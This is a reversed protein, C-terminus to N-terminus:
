IKRGTKDSYIRMKKRNFGFNYRERLKDSRAAKLM